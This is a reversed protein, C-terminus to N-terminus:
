LPLWFGPLLRSEPMSPFCPEGGRSGVGHADGPRAGVTPLRRPSSSPNNLADVTPCKGEPGLTGGGSHATAPLARSGGDAAPAPASNRPGRPLSGSGPPGQEETGAARGRQGRGAAPLLAPPRGQSHRRHRRLALTPAPCPAPSAGAGGCGAAEGASQGRRRAASGPSAAEGTGMLRIASRKM